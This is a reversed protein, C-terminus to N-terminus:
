VGEDFFATMAACMWERQDTSFEQTFWDPLSEHSLSDAMKGMADSLERIRTQLSDVITARAGNPSLAKTLGLLIELFIAPASGPDAPNGIFSWFSQGVVRYVRVQRTASDVLVGPRQVRDEEVFGHELLKVLLQNEKNNTTRPTGYTLGIVIDIGAINPHSRQSTRLWTVHHQVIASKMAEVQTDNITNPGSKIMVLYRRDGFVCAKDIERWVSATRRRAKEERALGRLDNLEEIKEAPDQWSSYGGIPYEVFGEKEICKGFSTELGAYVKSHVLFRAFTNPDGLGLAQAATIIVYPNIRYDALNKRQDISRPVNTAIYTSFRQALADVRQKDVRDLCALAQSPSLGAPQQKLLNFFENAGTVASM